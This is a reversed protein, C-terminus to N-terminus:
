NFSLAIKGYSSLNGIGRRHTDKVGEENEASKFRQHYVVASVFM